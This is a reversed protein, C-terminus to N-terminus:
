SVSFARTFLLGIAGAAFGAMAGFLACLLYKPWTRETPETPSAITLLYRQQRASDARAASLAERAQELGERAMELDATASEFSGISTSVANASGVLRAREREIFRGLAGARARLEAMRPSGEPADLAQLAELEAQVGARQVELQQIVAGIRSAEAQPDLQGTATRLATQRVQVEIVQNEAQRVDVEATSVLDNRVRENYRNIFGEAISITAAAIREADKPRRAAGEIEVIQRTLSYRVQVVSRFFRLKEEESPNAPLPHLPDLSGGPFMGFLNVQEDLEDLADPSRLYEQVLFGDLLAMSGGLSGGGGRLSRVSAIGGDAEGTGGRVVVTAASTYLPLALILAYLLGILAGTLIAGGLVPWAKGARFRDTFTRFNLNSSIM